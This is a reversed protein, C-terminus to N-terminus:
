QILEFHGLDDFVNDRVQWDRDWDGGWRLKYQLDSAIGMVFGAFYHFRDRDQWDIPYPYVDIARSPERNHLSHPWKLKSLGKFFLANQEEKTRHGSVATCDFTKVVQIFINQLRPDCTLLVDKSRNSFEPM